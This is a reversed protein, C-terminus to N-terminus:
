HQAYIKKQIVHITCLLFLISCHLCLIVFSRGWDIPFLTDFSDVKSNVKPSIQHLHPSFILVLCDETALRQSLVRITTYYFPMGEKCTIYCNLTGNSLCDRLTPFLSTIAFRIVSQRM